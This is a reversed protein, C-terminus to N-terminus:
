FLVERKSFYAALAREFPTETSLTEFAIKHQDCFGKIESNYKALAALYPTQCAEGELEMTEGTELDQFKILGKYPFALEDGNLIQFLIVECQKFTLQHLSRLFDTGQELFDSFVLVLSRRPIHEAIKALSAAANSIGGPKLAELQRLMSGLHSLSNSCGTFDGPKDSWTILSFADRQKHALYMFAAALYCAYNFKAPSKAKDAGSMAMSNSTDLLMYSKLNTEENFCKIYYRDSRAYTKWDIYRISDGPSYKRYEAFESSFGRYPSRHLGLMAGEVLSRAVFEVNKLTDLTEPPLYTYTNEQM